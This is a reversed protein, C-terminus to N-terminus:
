LQLLFYMDSDLNKWWLELFFYRYEQSCKWLRWHGKATRYFMAMGSALLLRCAGIGHLYLSVMITTMRFEWIRCIVSQFDTQNEASNSLQQRKSSWYQQGKGHMAVRPQPLRHERSTNWHWRQQMKRQMTSMSDMTGIGLQSKIDKSPSPVPGRREVVQSRMLTHM